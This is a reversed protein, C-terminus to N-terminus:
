AIEIKRKQPAEIEKNKQLTLKLIGDQYNASVEKKQNVTSPIQLQREFSEYNFEKRSYNEKEEVNENKKSASVSLIDDAVTVDIEEKSFGPVALEIEFHDENEKVNMAPMNRRSTFFDDEFFGDSNMLDNIGGDIWPFRNRNFKLLSM